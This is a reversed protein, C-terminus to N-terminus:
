EGGGPGKVEAWKDWSEVYASLRPATIAVRSSSVDPTHGKHWEIVEQTPQLRVLNAVQTNWAEVNQSELHSHRLACESVDVSCFRKPGPADHSWLMGFPGPAYVFGAGCLPCPLPKPTTM